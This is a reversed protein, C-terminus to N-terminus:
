RQWRGVKNGNCDHLSGYTCGDEIKEIVHRLIRNIEYGESQKNKSGDIPDCFAAGETNIDLIFM